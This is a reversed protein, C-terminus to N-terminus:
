RHNSNNNPPASNSSDRVSGFRQFRQYLRSSLVRVTSPTSQMTGGDKTLEPRRGNKPSAKPTQQNRQHEKEKGKRTSAVGPQNTTANNQERNKNTHVVKNHIRNKHVSTSNDEQKGNHRHQAQVIQKVLPRTYKKKLFWKELEVCASHYVLLCNQKQGCFGHECCRQGSWCFDVHDSCCQGCGGFARVFCRWWRDVTYLTLM